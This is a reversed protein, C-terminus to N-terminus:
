AVSINSVIVPAETPEDDPPGGPGSGGEPPTFGGEPPTFGGEPPTFGGEPPTFGGEPPTWDGKPPPTWDGKSPPSQAAIAHLAISIILFAIM